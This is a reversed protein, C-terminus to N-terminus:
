GGLGIAAKEEGAVHPQGVHDIGRDAVPRDAIRDERAELLILGCASRPQDCQDLALAPKGRNGAIPPGGLARKRKLDPRLNVTIM